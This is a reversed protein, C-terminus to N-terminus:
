TATRGCRRASADRGPRARARDRGVRAYDFDGPSEIPVEVLDFGIRRSTRAGAARVRRDDAAVTWVWTNIGLKM